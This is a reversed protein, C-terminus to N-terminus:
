GFGLGCRCGCFALVAASRGLSSRTVTAPTRSQGRSAGPRRGGRRRGHKRLASATSGAETCSAARPVSGATPRRRRSPNPLGPRPRATAARSSVPDRTARETLPCSALCPHHAPPTPRTPRGMLTPTQCVGFHQKRIVGLIKRFFYYDCGFNRLFFIVGLFHCAYSEM